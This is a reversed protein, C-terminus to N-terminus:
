LSYNFTVRYSRGPMPFNKIVDYYQNFLNNVEMGLRVEGGFAELAYRAAIDHTYWPQLYNSRINAKQSYREGTYIFSYNLEARKYDAALNISGSHRPIYPIQDGYNSAGPTVDAAQQWTYNLQASYGVGFGTKGSSRLSAEVGTTEVKGLNLMTWRFLNAGPVAVIKDTIWVKYADARAELYHSGFIHRFSLGANVQESYEPSLRTNGIFTYYLDNFTPMRFIRKYFARLRLDDTRFPQWSAMVTPTFEQKDGAAEYHKVSERITTSLMGAQVYLRDFSLDTTLAALFTNREPYAFRYLNAELSNNEYDTALAVKWFDNLRYSQALSMYFTEQDYRNDLYGSTTVIEPDSYRTHDRAYKGRVVMFYRDSVKQKFEGQLFNQEDWLRQPRRFRNAVVAGPLGRESNYHYYKVNWKSQFRTTGYLSTELRYSRVDANKRIATTDYSGNTFRFKYRGHAYVYGTSVRASLHDNFKYDASLSPNVLGFSGTKFGPKLNLDRGESFSPAGSKLYITSASAYARASQGADSRQGNYLAIEEMNELSFRGLDVQGNQANTLGIGDYFVGTHETGMSRVNITKLGGIGGYDKLQVGSFYRVADAVSLSNLQKLKAGSLIQVPTASTHQRQKIDKVLIVEELKHYVISDNDRDQANLSNVVFVFLMWLRFFRRKVGSKRYVSM